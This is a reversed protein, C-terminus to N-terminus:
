NLNNQNIGSHFGHHDTGAPPPPRMVSRGIRASGIPKYEFSRLFVAQEEQDPRRRRRRLPQQRLASAAPNGDVADLNDAANLDRNQMYEYVTGHFENTGSKVVQNFQGGSSHGFEPSFQNQQVTFEAVADNPVHVLPGTVSRSNNDIGEIIFQQQAAATRGGLSRHRARRRRQNGRRCQPAVPQHRRIGIGDPLDAMQSACFLDAGGSHHHRDHDGCRNSGCNRRGQRDPRSMLPKPRLAVIKDGVEAKAFGPNTVTLTYTGVPLNAFTINDPLVRHRLSRSARPM